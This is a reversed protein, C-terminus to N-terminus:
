QEVVDGRVKSTQVIFFNRQVSPSAFFDYVENLDVNWLGLNLNGFDSLTREGLNSTLIPVLLFSLLLLRQMSVETFILM